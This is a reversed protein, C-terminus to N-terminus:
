MLSLRPTLGPESDTEFGVQCFIYLGSDNCLHNYNVLQLTIELADVIDMVLSSHPIFNLSVKDKDIKTSTTEAHENDTAGTEVGGGAVSAPRKMSVFEGVRTAAGVKTDTVGLM